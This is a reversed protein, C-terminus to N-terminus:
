NQASGVLEVTGATISVITDDARQLLLRGQSDIGQAIGEDGEIRVQRGKLGDVRALESALPSLGREILTLIRSELEALVAVLLDERCTRGGALAVSTATPLLAEPFCKTHVNIGFGVVTAVLAGGRLCSEALVGAIKKGDVWVDNPWKVQVGGRRETAPLVNALATRIALGVALSVPVTAEPSLPLRLVVSCLLSEGDSAFWSRGRRGRGRTQREAVFTTGHVAGARAAALADDNTSETTQCAVCPSGLQVGARERRQEFLPVDFSSM